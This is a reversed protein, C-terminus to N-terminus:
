RQRETDAKHRAQSLYAPELQLLSAVKRVIHAEHDSVVGDALIVNWMVEALVMKQGLDYHEAIARTFQFHDIAERREAEALALLERMEADDLGFHRRLAGEIHTAEAPTFEGDAHALELLLACAALQVGRAADAAPAHGAASKAEPPAGAMRDRVFARIASIM